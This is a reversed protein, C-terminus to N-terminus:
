QRTPRGVAKNSRKLRGGTRGIGCAAHWAINWRLNRVAFPRWPPGCRRSRCKQKLFTDCHCDSVRESRQAGRRLRRILRVFGARPGCRAVLHVLTEFKLVPSGRLAPPAPMEAQLGPTRCTRGGTGDCVLISEGSVPCRFGSVAAEPVDEVHTEGSSRFPNSEDTFIGVPDCAARPGFDATFSFKRPPTIILVISFERGTVGCM